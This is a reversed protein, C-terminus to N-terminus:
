ALETAVSIISNPATKRIVVFSGISFPIYTGGSERM